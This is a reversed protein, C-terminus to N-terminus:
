QNKQSCEAAVDGTHIFRPTQGQSVVNATQSGSVPRLHLLRGGARQCGSQPGPRGSEPGWPDSHADLGVAEADHLEEEAGGDVRQRCPLFVGDKCTCNLM